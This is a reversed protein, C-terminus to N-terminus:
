AAVAMRAGGAKGVAALTRQNVERIARQERDLFSQPDRQFACNDPAGQAWVGLGALALTGFFSKM